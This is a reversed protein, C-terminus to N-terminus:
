SNLYNEAEQYTPFMVSPAHTSNTVKNVQMKAIVSEPQVEVAKSLGAKMIEMQSAQQRSLLHQAIAKYELFDVLLTFGPRVLKLAKRLEPEYANVVEDTWYGICHLYLRNVQEDVFIKFHANASLENKM